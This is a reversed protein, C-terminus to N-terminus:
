QFHVNITSKGMFFQSKGYNKTQKGSPINLVCVRKRREIWIQRFFPLKRTFKQIQTSSTEHNGVAAWITRLNKQGTTNTENLIGWLNFVQQM